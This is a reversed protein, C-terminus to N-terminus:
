ESELALEGIGMKVTIVLQEGVQDYSGNTFVTGSQRFGALRTSSLGGELDVRTGVQAPVRIVLRSIGSEVEARSRGTLAGDFSLEFDGAGGRFTMERFRANGLGTLSLRAAGALVELESLTEPNPTSFMITGDCAGVNLTLDRLRLGGLEVEGQFAGLNLDLALPLDRNLRIDWENRVDRTDWGGWRIERQPRLTAVQVDGQTRTTLEPALENVNYTFQGDLLGTAGPRLKLRGGGFLIQVRASVATPDVPVSKQEQRLEGVSVPARAPWQSWDDWDGWASGRCPVCCCCCGSAAMAVVLLASVLLWIKAM